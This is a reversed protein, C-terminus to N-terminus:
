LFQGQLEQRAIAERVAALDIQIIRGETDLVIASKANGSVAVYTLDVTGIMIYFMRDRLWSYIMISGDTCAAILLGDPTFAIGRTRAHLTRWLIAAGILSDSPLNSIHITGDNATVAIAKGGGDFVISQIADGAHLIPRQRATNADIISVNGKADGIYMSTRDPSSVIATIEATGRAMPTADGEGRTQWLGGDSSIMIASRSTAGLAFSGIPQPLAALKTPQGAPDWLLLRGDRGASVFEGTNGIFEVQSVVGHHTAFMRKRLLEPATWIEVSDNSGYTAFMRGDATHAIHMADNLHPSVARVGKSVSYVTLEPYPTTTILTDDSFFAARFRRSVNAVLRAHRGPLPWARLAGRVDGSIFFKYEESPPSIAILRFGHGKYTTALETVLDFVTLAGNGGAAIIYDGAASAAVREAHGELRVRSLVVGTQLDWTGITGDKCAYAVSSRFPIFKIGSVASQCIVEHSRMHPPDITAIYAEGKPTGLALLHDHAEADWASSRTTWLTVASSPKALDVLSLRSRGSIAVTSDGIFLIGSGDATALHFIEKVDLLNSLDFVRLMATRSITALKSGNASLALNVSGAGRLIRQPPTSQDRSINLACLDDPDCEYVLLSRVASYAFLGRPSVDRTVVASTGDQLTRTIAGDLGMSIIGRATGAAWIVNDTHPTARVAAVGKALAASYIQRVQDLDDGHYTALADLASSPDSALLLEAHQLTVADLSAQAAARARMASSESADARNRERTIRRVYLFSVTVALTLMAATALAVARHRRIWHTLMAWLSYSRAGIRAGAKFAKLDSALAGADPYRRGADPDLAKDIITALDQDIGARRLIRHRQGAYSPPLKELSCLEWLMAGIAYVDARQDVSEGRAQEPAMYAPTGLVSGASTLGDDRSVPFPGGGSASDDASTLDKALGWDIVVTEGFDGVIV